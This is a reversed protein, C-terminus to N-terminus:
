SLETRAALAALAKLMRCMWVQDDEGLGRYLRVVLWEEPTLAVAEPAQVENIDPVPVAFAVESSM